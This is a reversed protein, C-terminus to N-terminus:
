VNKAKQQYFEPYHKKVFEDKQELVKDIREQWLPDNIVEWEGTKLYYIRKPAPMVNIIMELLKTFYEMDRQYQRHRKELLYPDQNIIADSM